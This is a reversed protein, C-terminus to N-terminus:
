RLKFYMIALGILALLWGTFTYGNILLLYGVGVLTAVLFIMGGILAAYPFDSLYARLSQKEDIDDIDIVSEMFLHGILSAAFTIFSVIVVNGKEFQFLSIGFFQLAAILAYFIVILIFYQKMFLNM